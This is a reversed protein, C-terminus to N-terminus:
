QPSYKGGPGGSSRRALVTGEFIARYVESYGRKREGGEGESMVLGWSSGDTYVWGFTKAPLWVYWFAKGREDINWPSKPWICLPTVVVHYTAQPVLGQLTFSQPSAQEYYRGSQSLVYQAPVDCFYVPYSYRSDKQWYAASPPKPPEVLSIRYGVVIQKLPLYYFTVGGAAGQDSEFISTVEQTFPAFTVCAEGAFEQALVPFCLICLVVAGWLFWLLRGRM